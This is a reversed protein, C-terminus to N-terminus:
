NCYKAFSLSKNLSFGLPELLVRRLVKYVRNM